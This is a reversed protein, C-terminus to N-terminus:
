DKILSYIWCLLLLYPLEYALIMWWFCGPHWFLHPSEDGSKIKEIYKEAVPQIISTDFHWKGDQWFMDDDKRDKGNHTYEFSRQTVYSRGDEALYVEEYDSSLYILSGVIAILGCCSHLLKGIAFGQLVVSILFIGLFIMGVTCFLAGFAYLKLPPGPALMMSLM